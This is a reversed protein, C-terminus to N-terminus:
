KWLGFLGGWRSLLPNKSLTLFLVEQPELKRKLEKRLNKAV